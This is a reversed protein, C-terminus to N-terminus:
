AADLKAEGLPIAKLRRHYLDRLSTSQFRGSHKLLARTLPSCAHRIIGAPPPVGSEVLAVAEM